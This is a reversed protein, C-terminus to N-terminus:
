EAASAAPRQVRDPAAVPAALRVKLEDLSFAPPADSGSSLLSRLSGGPELVYVFSPNLVGDIVPGAVLIADAEAVVRLDPAIEDGVRVAADGIEGGVFTISVRAGVVAAGRLVQDVTATASTMITAFKAAEDQTPSRKQQVYLPPDGDDTTWRAGGLRVSSVLLVADLSPYTVLADLTRDLPYGELTISTVGDGNGGDRLHTMSGYAVLTVSAVVVLSVMLMRRSLTM